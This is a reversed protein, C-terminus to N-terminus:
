AAYDPVWFTFGLLIIVFTNLLMFLSDSITFGLVQLLCCLHSNSGYAPLLGLLPSILTHLVTVKTRHTGVVRVREFVPHLVRWGNAQPQGLLYEPSAIPDSIDGAM